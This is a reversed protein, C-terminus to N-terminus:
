LQQERHEVLKYINQFYPIINNSEFIPPSSFFFFLKCSHMFTFAGVMGGISADAGPDVMFQLGTHRIKLFLQHLYQYNGNFMETCTSASKYRIWEYM